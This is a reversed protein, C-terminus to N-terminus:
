FGSAKSGRLEDGALLSLVPSNTVLGTGQCDDSFSELCVDFAINFYTMEPLPPCPYFLWSKHTLHVETESQTRSRVVQPGWNVELAELTNNTFYLYYWSCPDTLLIFRPPGYSCLQAFCTSLFAEKEPWKISRHLRQFYSLPAAAQWTRSNYWRSAYFRQWSGYCAPFAGPKQNQWMRIPVPQKM